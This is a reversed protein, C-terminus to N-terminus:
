SAGTRSSSGTPTEAFIRRTIGMHLKTPCRSPWGSSCRPGTRDDGGEGACFLRSFFCLGIVAVLYLIATRM